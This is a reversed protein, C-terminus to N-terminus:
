VMQAMALVYITKGYQPITVLGNEYPNLNHFGNLKSEVYTILGWGMYMVQGLM